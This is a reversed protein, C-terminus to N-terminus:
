AAASSMFGVDRNFNRLNPFISDLQGETLGFWRGITGAYQDVSMSPVLINGSMDPNAFGTQDVGLTPYQGYINGGNVAGGMVFQHSGWAHDTGDGNTTFTRSFDSATFTTVQPRMDVGNLNAMAGDFYSLAHALRALLPSQTANQIDHNDFGGMSVFFVQRRMGLVANAAITKAVSQLQVALANTENLRTIPNLLQTPAAVSAGPGGAAFQTNLLDAAGMSRIVKAGHDQMFYSSGTVDGIIERVRAGANSAGFVTTTPTAASTIRVAPATQSTSIQYQVVSQGALLVANGATSIATFVSNAGNTSLFQDAMLGGWGRRAGETAGAQWTSQQDNHSMLNSPLPVNRARYQAKTTPQILPGVNSAIALRGSTWLPLLPGMHPNLAFTRVAASTGAPVPNPTAPVIPLVGGWAEPLLFATANGPLTRGTVPNTGGPPTVATGAPMLAIPDVGGNRASFYRGWSDTDTALVMNNSDNGGFLFICVLAKYSPATQAAAEGMTALQFGFTSAAAGVCSLATARRLIERRTAPSMPKDTM